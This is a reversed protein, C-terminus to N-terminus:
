KCKEMIYAKGAETSILIQINRYGKSMVHEALKGWALKMDDRSRLPVMFDIREIIKRM